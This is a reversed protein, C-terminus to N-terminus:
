QENSREEHAGRSLSKNGLAKRSMLHPAFRTAESRAAREESEGRNENRDNDKAKNLQKPRMLNITAHPTWRTLDHGRKLDDTEPKTADPHELLYSSMLSEVESIPPAHGGSLYSVDDLKYEPHFWV